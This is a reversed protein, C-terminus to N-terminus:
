QTIIVHTIAYTGDFPILVGHQNYVLVGSLTISEGILFNNM